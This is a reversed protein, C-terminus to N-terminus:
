RDAVWLIAQRVLRRYFPNAYAEPGHGLQIYVVKGDGYRKCWGIIRESKPHDTTLLVHVDSSVWYGKYTEDHITFDTVGQTVPHNPDAIHVAISQGHTPIGRPYMKGQWKQPSLFYRGGLMMHFEPWGQHAALAHHLVVLGGGRKVFGRYAAKQKDTLPGNWMSYTVIVDFRQALTDNLQEAAKPYAHHTYRIGAFRDFMAFFAEENFGHGGTLLLVRVPDAPSPARSGLMFAATTTVLLAALLPRM